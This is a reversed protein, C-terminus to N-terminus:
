AEVWQITGAYDVVRLTNVAWQATSGNVTSNAGNILDSGSPTFVAKQTGVANVFTLTDGPSVTAIAPLTVAQDSPSGRFVIIKNIDFKTLTQAGTAALTRSGTNAGRNYFCAWPCQVIVRTAELVQVVEGAFNGFTGSNYSVENNYKWFVKRGEDGGAAAAIKAKFALPREIIFQFDGSVGNTAVTADTGVTQRPLNNLIGVFEAAATDDMQVINGSSDRGVAQGSYFTLNAAPTAAPARVTPSENWPVVELKDDGTTNAFHMPVSRIARIVEEDTPLVPFGKHM